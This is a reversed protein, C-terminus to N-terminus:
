VISRSSPPPPIDRTYRASSVASPRRTTIL